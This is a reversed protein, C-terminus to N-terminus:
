GCSSGCGEQQGADAANKEALISALAKKVFEDFSEMPGWSEVSYADSVFPDSLVLVSGEQNPGSVYKKGHHLHHVEGEGHGKPVRAYVLWYTLADTASVYVEYDQEFKKLLQQTAEKM